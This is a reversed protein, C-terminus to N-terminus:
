RRTLVVPAAVENPVTDYRRAPQAAHDPDGVRMGEAVSKPRPVLPGVVRHDHVGDVSLLTMVVFGRSWRVRRGIPPDAHPTSTIKPSASITRCSEAQADAQTVAAAIRKASSVM